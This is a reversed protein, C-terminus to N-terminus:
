PLQGAFFGYTALPVVLEHEEYAFHSLLTDTLLDLADTIPALDSPYQALHVLAADVEGLLAHIVDHEAALRDLVPALDAERARLHPFIGVSEMVHHETLALCQAQCVGGLAWDNARLAMEQLAGRATGLQEAGARVQGLIDRVRRLEARYHDHVDILHQGVALGRGSLPSGDAPAATVPRSMEDLVSRASLREIPAPTPTLGTEATVWDADSWTQDASSM